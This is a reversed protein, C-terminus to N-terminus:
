LNTTRSQNRFPLKKQKPKQGKMVEHRSNIFNGEDELAEQIKRLLFSDDTEM